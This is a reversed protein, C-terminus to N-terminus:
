RNVGAKELESEIISEFNEFPQAGEVPYGNVLFTPTAQVGLGQAESFDVNIAESFEQNTFAAEFVALDLGEVTRAVQFVAEPTVQDRSIEAGYFAEQYEWFKGQEAAARGGMAAYMSPEGFLPLDRWEVRVLGQDVYNEVIKPLTEQAFIGCYPCTLDAYEIVVVPADLTGMAYPDNDARRALTSLQDQMAQREAESPQGQEAPSELGELAGGAGEEGAPDRPDGVVVDKAGADPSGDPQGVAGVLIFGVVAAFFVVAAGIIWYVARSSKPKDPYYTIATPTPDSHATGAFDNVEYGSTAPTNHADNPDTM